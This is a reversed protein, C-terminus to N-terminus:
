INNENTEGKAVELVAGSREWCQKCLFKNYAECNSLSETLGFRCPCTNEVFEEMREESDFILRVPPVAPKLDRVFIQVDTIKADDVNFFERLRDSVVKQREPDKEVSIYEEVDEEPIKGVYTFQVTVINTLEKEIM